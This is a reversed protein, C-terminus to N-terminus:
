FLFNDVDQLEALTTSEVLIRLGTYAVQVGTGVVTFTLDGLGNAALIEIKDLGEVFDVIRDAGDSVAFVFIDAQDGGILRDNGRGGILRDDGALGSLTDNGLGGSLANADGSGTLADGFGTGTLNEVQIMALFGLNLAGAPQQFASTDLSVTVGTLFGALDVTDIGDGGQVEVGFNVTSRSIFLTDDGDDLVVLRALRNGLTVTDNGTGTDVYEVRGAALNVIDNGDETIVTFAEGSGITIRDVGGGTQIFSVFGAGSTLVNTGSGLYVLGAGQAGFTATDNQDFTQLTEVYGTATLTNNGGGLQVNGAGGSGI